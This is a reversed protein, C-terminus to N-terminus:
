HEQSDAMTIGHGTSAVAMGLHSWGPAGWIYPTLVVLALHPAIPHIPSAMGLLGHRTHWLSVVLPDCQGCHARPLAMLLCAAYPACCLAMRARM